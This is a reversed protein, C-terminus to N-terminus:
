KPELTNTVTYSVNDIAETFSVKLEDDSLSVVTISNPSSGDLESTTIVTEDSNFTWNQTSTQPDDASCKTAGEDFVFQGNTKFTTFDDKSCAPTFLENAYLDSVLVGNGLLDIAPTIVSAKVIWAHATLLETKTKNDEKKCGSSSALLGVLALVAFVYNFLKM